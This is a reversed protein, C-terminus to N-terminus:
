AVDVLRRAAGGEGLGGLAVHGHRPGAEGEARQALRARAGRDRDAPVAARGHRDFGLRAIDVLRARPTLRTSSTTNMTMTPTAIAPMKPANLVRVAALASGCTRLCIRAM